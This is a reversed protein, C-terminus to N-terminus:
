EGAEQLAARITPAQTNELELGRAKLWPILAIPSTIPADTKAAEGATNAEDVALLLQALEVDVLVGRSDIANHADLADDDPHAELMGESESTAAQAMLLVDKACYRIIASLRPGDPDLFEGKRKGKTQPSWCQRMVRAGTKDKGVDFLVQGVGELHGPLGRRRCLAVTDVWETLPLGHAELVGRDFPANHACMEAGEAAADVLWPPLGQLGLQPEAYAIEGPSVGLEELWEPKLKWRKLPGLWPSWTRFIGPPYDRLDLAVGCLIETSPDAAYVHTGVTPLDIRSRTELDLFIM